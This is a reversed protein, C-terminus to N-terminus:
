GGTQTNGSGSVIVGKFCGSFSDGLRAIGKSNAYVSSSATIIHGIHGCSGIIIDGLRATELGNTLVNPSGQIITGTMSICPPSDHCCCIGVGIDGLRATLM